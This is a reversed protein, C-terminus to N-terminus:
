KSTVRIVSSVANNNALDYGKVQLNYTAKLAKPVKWSCIYPAVTSTCTLSNNVYFEVKVVGLNDSAAAQITTTKNHTVYSGDAPSIISVTLPFTDLLLTPPTSLDCKVVNNQVLIPDVIACDALPAVFTQGKFDALDKLYLYPDSNPYILEQGFYHYKQIDIGPEFQSFENWDNFSEFLLMSVKGKAANLFDNLHGTGNRIGYRGSRGPEHSLAREDFGPFAHAVVDLGVAAMNTLDNSFNANLNWGGSTPSEYRIAQVLQSNVLQSNILNLDTTSLGASLIWYASRSDLFTVLNPISDWKSYFNFWYAPKGNIHLFASNSAYTDIQNRVTNEWFNIDASATSAPQWGEIGVKFGDQNATQLVTGFNQQSRQDFAFVSVFFGDVGAAKALRIHWDMVKPDSSEYPGILPYGPTSIQRLWPAGGYPTACPNDTESWWSWHLWSVQPNPTPCSGKQYWTHYQIFVPPTAPLPTAAFVKATPLFYFVSIVLFFAATFFRILKM